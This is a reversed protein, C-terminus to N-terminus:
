SELQRPRLNSPIRDNKTKRKGRKQRTGKKKPRRQMLGRNRHSLLTQFRVVNRIDKQQYVEISFLSPRSHTPLMPGNQPTPMRPAQHTHPLSRCRRTEKFHSAFGRVNSRDGQRERRKKQRLRHGAPVGEKEQEKNKNEKETVVRRKKM